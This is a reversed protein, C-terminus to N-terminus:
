LIEASVLMLEKDVCGSCAPVLCSFTEKTDPNGSNGPNFGFAKDPCNPFDPYKLFRQKKQVCKV